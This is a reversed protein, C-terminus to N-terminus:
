QASSETFCCCHSPMTCHGMSTNERSEGGNYSMPSTSSRHLLSAYKGVDAELWPRGLFCTVMNKSIARM